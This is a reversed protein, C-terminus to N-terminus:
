GTFLEKFLAADRQMQVATKAVKGAPEFPTAMGDLASTAITKEPGTRALVLNQLQKVGNDQMSAWAADANGARIAAPLQDLQVLLGSILDWPASDGTGAAAQGAAAAAVGLALQAEVAAAKAAVEVQAADVLAAQAKALAAVALGKAATAKSLAATRKAAQRTAQLVRLVPPKAGDRRKRAETLREQMGEVLERIGPLEMFKELGAIDTQMKDISKALATGEGDDVDCADDDKDPKDEMDKNGKKDNATKLLKKLGAIQKDKAEM